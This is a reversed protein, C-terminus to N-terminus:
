AIAYPPLEVTRNLLLGASRVITTVEDAEIRM